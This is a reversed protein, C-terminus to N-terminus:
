NMSGLLARIGLKRFEEDSFLGAMAHLVGSQRGSVAVQASCQDKGAASTAAIVVGCGYRDSHDSIFDSLEKIKSDLTQAFIQYEDSQFLAQMQAETYSAIEPAGRKTVHQPTISHEQPTQQKTNM